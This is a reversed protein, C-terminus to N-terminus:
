TKLNSLDASNFLFSPSKSDFADPPLIQHQAPKPPKPNKPKKEGNYNLSFHHLREMGDGYHKIKIVLPKLMAMEFNYPDRDDTSQSDGEETSFINSDYISCRQQKEPHKPLLCEFLRKKETRKLFNGDCNQAYIEPSEFYSIRNHSIQAVQNLDDATLVQGSQVIKQWLDLSGVSEENGPDRNQNLFFTFELIKSM